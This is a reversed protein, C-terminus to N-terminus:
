FPSSFCDLANEKGRESNEQELAQELALSLQDPCSTKGTGCRVGRLSQIVEKANRGRGASFDGAMEAAVEQLSWKEFPKGDLEITILNLVSARRSIFISWRSGGDATIKGKGFRAPHCRGGRRGGRCRGSEHFPNPLINGAIIGNRGRHRCDRISCIKMSESIGPVFGYFGKLFAPSRWLMISRTQSTLGDPEM